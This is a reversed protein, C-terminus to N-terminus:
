LWPHEFAQRVTLRQNVDKWMLGEILDKALPSLAQYRERNKIFNGERILENLQNMRFYQSATANIFPYRNLCFHFTYKSQLKRFLLKVRSCSIFAAAQRGCTLVKATCRGVICSRPLEISRHVLGHPFCKSGNGLVVLHQVRHRAFLLIWRSLHSHECELCVRKM